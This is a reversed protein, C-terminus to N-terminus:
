KGQRQKSVELLRSVVDKIEQFDKGLIAKKTLFVYFCGKILEDTFIRVSERLRRKILNREVAKKSIKVSVVFGVKTQEGQNPLFKLVLFDSNITKGFRLVRQFDRYKTLRYNKSLM